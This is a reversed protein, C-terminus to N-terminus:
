IDLKKVMGEKVNFVDKHEFHYSNLDNLSTCTVITQIEKLSTLLFSQRKSDLESLVDDLLLIPYEGVESKIIELESLKLSLAATRQQGQSGYMRADMGNIYILLDDRHPGKMTIGRSIDDNINETYYKLLKNKVDNKDKFEEASLQYVIELEEKGDTIKRHMLKAILGLKKIFENRVETIFSGYEALQESFVEITYKISDSYKASKLLTNRQMLCNNYQSLAYHYKPRIQNLENDIFKRRIGPGEKVLKLDEPSFIVANVAGLIDSTKTKKIGNIKIARKEESSLLFEMIIEGFNKVVEAKIYTKTKGWKILDKDRSTRHSKISSIYYISEVINTKGQANEGVFINLGKNFNLNLGIYNRFNKLELSKLYM